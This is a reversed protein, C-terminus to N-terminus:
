ANELATVKVSLEQIAKMMPAIFQSYNISKLKIYGDEPHDPDYLHPSPNYYTDPDGEVQEKTGATKGNEEEDDGVMNKFDIYSKGLGTLVTEVEQALLGYEFTKSKMVGETDATGVIINGDDDTLLDRPIKYKYKVPHLANVFSLGLDSDTICRKARCDSTEAGGTMHVCGTICGHSATAYNANQGINITNGNGGVDWGTGHGIGINNTGSTLNKYSCHGIAINSHGTVVCVGM